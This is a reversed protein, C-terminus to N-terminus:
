YKRPVGEHARHLHLYFIHPLLAEIYSYGGINKKKIKSNINVKVTLLFM